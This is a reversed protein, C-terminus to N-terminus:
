ACKKWPWQRLARCHRVWVTRWLVIFGSDNVAKKSRWKARGWRWKAAFHLFRVTRSAFSKESRQVGNSIVVFFLIVLLFLPWKVAEKVTMECRLSSIKDKQFRPSEESRKAVNLIVRFFYNNQFSSIFFLKKSCKKM